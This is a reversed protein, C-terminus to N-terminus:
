MFNINCGKRIAMGKLAEYEGKLKSLEDKKDEGLMFFLAPWFLVVGVALALADKNAEDSQQGSIESIKQNVRILEQHIQNCSYGQYQLPSVYTARITNPHAACGALFLTIICISIIRKLNRKKM